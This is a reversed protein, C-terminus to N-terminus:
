ASSSVEGKKEKQAELATTLMYELLSESEAIRNLVDKPAGKRIRKNADVHEEEVFIAIGLIDGGEGYEVSELTCMECVPLPLWEEFLFQVDGSEWEGECLACFDLDENEGVAVSADEGASLLLMTHVSRVIQGFDKPEASKDEKAWWYEYDGNSYRLIPLRVRVFSSLRLVLIRVEAGLEPAIRGLEKVLTRLLPSALAMRDLEGEAPLRHRYKKDKHKNFWRGDGRTEESRTFGALINKTQFNM